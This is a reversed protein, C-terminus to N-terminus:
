AGLNQALLWRYGDPDQILANLNTRRFGIVAEYFALAKEVDGVALFPIVTSYGASRLPPM